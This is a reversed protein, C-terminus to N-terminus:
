TELYLFDVNSGLFDVASNQLGVLYYNKCKGYQIFITPLTKKYRKGNVLILNSITNLIGKKDM